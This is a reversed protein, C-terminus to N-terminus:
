MILVELFNDHNDNLKYSIDRNGNKRDLGYFILGQGVANISM